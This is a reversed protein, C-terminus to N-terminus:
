RYGDSKSSGEPINSKRIKKRDPSPASKNNDLLKGSKAIALILELQKQQQDQMALLVKQIEALEKELNDGQMTLARTAESNKQALEATQAIPEKMSKRTVRFRIGLKELQRLLVRIITASSRLDEEVKEIRDVLNVASSGPRSFGLCVRRWQRRRIVVGIVIGAVLLVPQWVSVRGFWEILVPKQSNSFSSNIVFGLSLVASSALCILEAVSLLDDTDLKDPTLIYKEDYASDSEFARVSRLNFPLTKLTKYNPYITFNINPTPPKLNFFIRTHTRSQHPILNQFTISM